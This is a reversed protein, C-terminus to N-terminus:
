GLLSALFCPHSASFTLIPPPPIRGGGGLAWFHRKTSLHFPNDNDAQMFYYFALFLAFGIFLLFQIWLPVMRDNMRLDARASQEPRIAQRAAVKPPLSHWSFSSTTLPVPTSASFTSSVVPSSSFVLDRNSKPIAGYHSLSQYTKDDPHFYDQDSAMNEEQELPYIINERMWPRRHYTSTRASDSSYNTRSLPEQFSSRATAVPMTSTDADGYTKTTSYSEEYYNDYDDEKEKETPAEAEVVATYQYSSCSPGPNLKTRQSEYEYIKKEYLKRTTGVVPAHPISYLQLMQILEQDSLRRYDEM